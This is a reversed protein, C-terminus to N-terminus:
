PAPPCGRRRLDSSRIGGSRPTERRRANSAHLRRRRDTRRGDAGRRLVHRRDRLVPRPAEPIVQRRRPRAPRGGAEVQPANRLEHRRQRPRLAGRTPQVDRESEARTGRRLLPIQQDGAPWSVRCNLYLKRIASSVLFGRARVASSARRTASSARSVSHVAGDKTLSIKRPLRRRSRTWGNGSAESSPVSNRANMSRSSRKRTSSTSESRISRSPFTGGCIMLRSASSPAKPMLIGFSYPPSPNEWRSYVSAIFSTVLWSPLRVTRREAWWDIPSGCGSFSKPVFSCFFFYKGRRARPATEANASVSGCTPDSGPFREVVASRM